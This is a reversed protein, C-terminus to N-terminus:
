RPPTSASGSSSCALLLRRPLRLDLAPQRGRRATGPGPVRRGDTGQGPHRDPLRQRRRRSRHRGLGDREGGPPPRVGVLGPDAGPRRARAGRPRRQFALSGDCTPRSTPTSARRGAQRPHRLEGPAGLAACRIPLGARSCRRWRRRPERSFQRATPTPSRARRDRRRLVAPAARAAHMAQASSGAPAAAARRGALRPRPARAARLERVDAGRARGLRGAGLPRLSPGPRRSRSRARHRAGAVLSGDLSLGQLPNDDTGIPTSCGGWGAPTPTRTSSASRGTTARPSTRSTPTRTASAGPAGDGQGRRPASALPAASPIGACARHGRDFGTGAGPPLALSRGCGRPLDPRRGALAGLARRHRGRPLDLGAGARRQRGGAAIGEEFAAFGAARAGYVRSCRPARACCSRAASSGPARRLRCGPSSRPCGGARGRRALAAALQARTFEDCRDCGM